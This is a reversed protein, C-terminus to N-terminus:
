NRISPFRIDRSTSHSIKRVKVDSLNLIENLEEFSLDGDGNVDLKDFMVEADFNSGLVNSSSGNTSLVPVTSDGDGDESILSIKSVLGRTSPQTDFSEKSSITKVLDKVHSIMFSARRSNSMPLAQATAAQATLKISDGNASGTTMSGTMMSGPMIPPMVSATMRKTDIENQVSADVKKKNKVKSERKKQILKGVAFGLIILV